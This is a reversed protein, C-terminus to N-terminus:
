ILFLIHFFQPEKFQIIAILFLPSMCKHRDVVDKGKKNIKRTNTQRKLTVTDSSYSAWKWCLAVAKTFPKGTHTCM